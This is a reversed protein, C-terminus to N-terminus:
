AMEGRNLIASQSHTAKVWSSIAKLHAETDAAQEPALSKSNAETYLAKARGLNGQRSAYEAALLLSKGQARLAPQIEEDQHLLLLAGSVVRNGEDEYGKQFLEAAREMQYHAISIWGSSGEEDPSAAFVKQATSPFDQALISPPLQPASKEAASQPDPANTRACAGLTAAISLVLFSSLHSFHRYKM